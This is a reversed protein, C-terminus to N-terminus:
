PWNEANDLSAVSRQSTPNKINASEDFCIIKPIGFSFDSLRVEKVLGAYTFMM